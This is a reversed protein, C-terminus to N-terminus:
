GREAPLHLGVPQDVSVQEGIKMWSLTSDEAQSARKPRHHCPDAPCSMETFAHKYKSEGVKRLVGRGLKVHYNGTIPDPVAHCVANAMSKPNSFQANAVGPRM